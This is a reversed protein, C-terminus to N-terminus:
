QRLRFRQSASKRGVEAAGAGSLCLGDRIGGVNLEPNTGARMNYTCM